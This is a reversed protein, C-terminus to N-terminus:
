LPPQPPPVIWFCLELVDDYYKEETNNPSLLFSWNLLEYGWSQFLVFNLTGCRLWIGGVIYGDCIELGGGARRWGLGRQIVYTKIFWNNEGGKTVLWSRIVVDFSPLSSPFLTSVTKFIFNNPNLCSNWVASGLFHFDDNDLYHCIFRFLDAGRVSLFFMRWIRGSQVERRREIEKYLHRM